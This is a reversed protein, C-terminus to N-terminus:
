GNPFIEPFAGRTGTIIFEVALAALILGMIRVIVNLGTTGLLKTMLAASRLILLTAICVCAIAVHLLIREDMTTAEGALMMVTAISAPGSLFPLGLPMLGVDDRSAADEEEEASSRKTSRKANMMDFALAFILIGGAIRFAPMSISFFRFIVTGAAAFVSLVTVATIAARLAILRQEGKSHHGALALFIPIAAIPDVVSFVSAFFVFFQAILTAM